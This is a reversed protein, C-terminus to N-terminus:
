KEVARLDNKSTALIWWQIMLVTLTYHLPFLNKAFKLVVSVMYLLALDLICGSNHQGRTQGFFWFLKKQKKIRVSKKQASTTQDLVYSFISVIYKSHVVALEEQKIINALANFKGHNKIDLADEFMTLSSSNATTCWFINNAIQRSSWWLARFFDTLISGRKNKKVM